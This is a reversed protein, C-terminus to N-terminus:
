FYAYLRWHAWKVELTGVPVLHENTYISVSITSDVKSLKNSRSVISFFKKTSLIQLNGELYEINISIAGYSFFFKLLDEASPAM